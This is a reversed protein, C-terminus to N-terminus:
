QNSHVLEIVGCTYKYNITYFSIKKKIDPFRELAIGKPGVGAFYVGTGHV